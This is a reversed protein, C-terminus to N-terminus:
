YETKAIGKDQKSVDIGRSEALIKDSFGFGLGLRDVGLEIYRLATALDAIGPGSAKVKARGAATEVMKKVAEETVPEFFGTCTKVFDAKAEICVETAKGIEDLTLHGIEFIVKVIAGHDHAVRSVAAIEDRVADWLGSRAFGFNMVTDIEEIGKKVYIETLATKAEKGGTGHPYDMVCCSTTDTGKCMSVAMEIDCPRVCIARYNEKLARELAKKVETTTMEPKLTSYDIYRQIEM